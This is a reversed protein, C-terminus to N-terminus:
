ASMRNVIERPTKAPAFLGYWEYTEYGPFGSEALTPVEPFGPSRKGGTVALAKVKGAKVFQLITPPSNIMFQVQGAVLDAAAPAGGKYPVAVLDLGGISRLLEMSLHGSSLSGPLGYNYAGPKAKVAAVFETVTSVNVSATATLIGPVIAVLSVPAFDNVSDYPLKSQVFPHVAHTSIFTGFTYGDPAAKAVADTGVIMAGGPRNDVVVQQGFVESLRVAVLRSLVDNTGGPALPVIIRIPKTPYTQAAVPSAFTASLAVAFLTRFVRFM